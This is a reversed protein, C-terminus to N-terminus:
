YEPKHKKFLVGHKDLGEIPVICSANQHNCNKMWLKIICFNKKPSITIGNINQRFIDNGCVSEGLLLYCLNKWAKLVDKNAVKYSFSGGDRNSTDEWVPKVGERMVFLMCNKIMIEPFSELLSIVEEMNSVQLLTKYSRLTWDTDHPLHAYFTWKDYLPHFGEQNTQTMINIESM